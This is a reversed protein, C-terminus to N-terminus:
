AALRRRPAAPVLPPDVLIAEGCHVCCREPCDTGHGDFCEPREFPREADCTACYGYEDVCGVM